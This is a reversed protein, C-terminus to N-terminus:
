AGEGRGIFFFIQIASFIVLVPGGEMLHFSVKIANEFDMNKAKLLIKLKLLEWCSLQECARMVTPTIRLIDQNKLNMIMNQFYFKYFFLLSRVSFSLFHKRKYIFQKKRKKYSFIVKCVLSNNLLYCLLCRTCVGMDQATKFWSCDNPLLYLEVSRNRMARSVGGYDEDM